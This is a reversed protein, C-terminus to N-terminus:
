STKSAGCEFRGDARLRRALENLRRARADLMSRRRGLLAVVPQRFPALGRWGQPRALLVGGRSGGRTAARVQDALEIAFGERPAYGARLILVLDQRLAELGAILAQSEQDAFLLACGAHDAIAELDSHSDRRDSCGVLAVDRVIGDMAAPIITALTRVVGQASVPTFAEDAALVLCSIMDPTSLGTEPQAALSATTWL